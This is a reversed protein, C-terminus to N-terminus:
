LELLLQGLSRIKPDLPRQKRQHLIRYLSPCDATLTLKNLHNLYADWMGYILSLLQGEIKYKQGVSYERYALPMQSQLISYQITCLGPNQRM